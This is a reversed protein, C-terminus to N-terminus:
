VTSYIAGSGGIVIWKSISTIYQLMTSNGVADFTITNFDLGTVSITTTKSGDLTNQFITKTQGSFGNGLSFLGNVGTNCDLRSVGRSPSIQKVITNTQDSTTYTITELSQLLVGDSQDSGIQINGNVHFKSQPDSIGIGMKDNPGKIILMNADNKSAFSFDVANQNPNIRISDNSNCNNLITSTSIKKNVGNQIVTFWDVDTLTTAASMQSVKITQM